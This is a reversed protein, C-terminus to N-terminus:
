NSRLTKQIILDVYDTEPYSFQKLHIDLLFGFCTM